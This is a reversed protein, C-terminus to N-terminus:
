SLIHEVQLFKTHLSVNGSQQVLRQVAIVQGPRIRQMSIPQANGQPVLSYVRDTDSKLVCTTRQSESSQTAQSAQPRVFLAVPTVLSAVSASLMRRRSLM